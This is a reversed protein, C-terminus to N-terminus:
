YGCGSSYLQRSVLLSHAFQLPSFLYITVVRCTTTRYPGRPTSFMVRCEATPRAVPSALLQVARCDTRIKVCGMSAGTGTGNKKDLGIEFGRPSSRVIRDSLRLPRSSLFLLWQFRHVISPDSSDDLKRHARFSFNLQLLPQRAHIIHARASLSGRGLRFVSAHRISPASSSVAPRGPGHTM